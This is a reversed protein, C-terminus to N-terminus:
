KRIQMFSIIATLSVNTVYLLCAVQLYTYIELHCKKLRCFICRISFIQKIKHLNVGNINNLADIECYSSLLPM